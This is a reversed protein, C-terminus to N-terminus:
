PTWSARSWVCFGLNKARIWDISFVCQHNRLGIGCVCTHFKRIAGSSALFANAQKRSCNEFISADASTRWRSQGKHSAIQVPVSTTFVDIERGEQLSMNRAPNLLNVCNQGCQDHLSQRLSHGLSYHFMEWISLAWHQSHVESCLWRLAACYSPSLCPTIPYKIGFSCSISLTYDNDVSEICYTAQPIHTHITTCNSQVM